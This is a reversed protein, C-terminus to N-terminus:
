LFNTTGSYKRGTTIEERRSARSQTHTHTAPLVVLISMIELRDTHHPKHLSTIYIRTCRVTPSTVNWKFCLCYNGDVIINVISALPAPRSSLLSVNNNNVITNMERRLLLLRMIIIILIPVSILLLPLLLLNTIKNKKRKTTTEMLLLLIMM